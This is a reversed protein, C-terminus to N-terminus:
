PLVGTGTPAIAGSTATFLTFALAAVGAVVGAIFLFKEAGTLGPAGAAKESAM